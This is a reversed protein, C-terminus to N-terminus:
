RSDASYEKLAAQLAEMRLQEQRLQQRAAAERESIRRRESDQVELGAARSQARFAELQSLNEASPATERLQQEIAAIQQQVEREQEESQRRLAEMREIEGEAAAIKAQQRELRDSLVELRLKRVEAATYQLWALVMAEQDTRPPQVQAEM